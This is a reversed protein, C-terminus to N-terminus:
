GLVGLLQRLKREYIPRSYKEAYLSRAADVVQERRTRDALAAVLGAAFAEPTPDVLFCVGEDLVQTHSYIRTAVLPIGCALQEYVKLPTNTGQIRPSTLVTARSTYHRATAQHVRGTFRCDDGLELEAALARAQAVQASTGGVMLLFADPRERRALAFARLLLDVGQYAEFTGAYVIVPRGEPLPEPPAEAAPAAGDRDDRARLRVPEFISNEVLFHRTPDAIRALAYDALDPCITLVADAARLAGDELREFLRVLLRSRSYNFNGLQQPLSSHMDYVLRFRFLPKLARAWFVSEEHAHVFDYRNRLLLGITWLAMAVDLVAKRVSPGVGVGGTFPLRPVRFLRVGPVDIDAGEGYTLLDVGVGLESLVLTRYYVSFPTGRPTFFPEPALM